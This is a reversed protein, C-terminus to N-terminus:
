RRNIAKKSVAYGWTLLQMVGVVIYPAYIFHIFYSLLVTLIASIMVYSYKFKLHRELSVVDPLIFIGTILVSGNLLFLLIIWSPQQFVVGLLGGVLIYSGVYLLTLKYDIVRRKMLFLAGLILPIIVTFCLSGEFLGFIVTQLSYYELTFETFSLPHLADTVVMYPASLAPPLEVLGLNNNTVIVGIVGILYGILAPSVHYFTHGKKTNQSLITMVTITIGCVSIPADLSFMLIFLTSFLFAPRKFPFVIGEKFTHPNTRSIFSILLDIFYAYGLIVGLKLVHVKFIEFAISTGLHGITSYYGFEVFLGVGILLCTVLSFYKIQREGYVRRAHYEKAKQKIAEQIRKM